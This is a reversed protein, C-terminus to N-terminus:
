KCSNEDIWLFSNNIRNEFEKLVAIMRTTDANVALLELFYYFTAISGIANVHKFCSMRLEKRTIIKQLKSRYEILLPYMYKRYYEIFSYLNAVNGDLFRWKPIDCPNDQALGDHITRSKMVTNPHLVMKNFLFVEQAASVHKHDLLFQITDYIEDNTSYPDFIILDFM